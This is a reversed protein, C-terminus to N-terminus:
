STKLIKESGDEASIELAPNLRRWVVEGHVSVGVNKTRGFPPFLILGKEM